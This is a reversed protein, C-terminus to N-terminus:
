SPESGADVHGYALQFAMEIMTLWTKRDQQSWKTNAKPLKKVLADVVPDGTGEPPPPAYSAQQPVPEHDQVENQRPGERVIPAVLRDDSGNPFFGAARASREFAQRAKDKQKPAVGFQVFAHEIGHPRPPLTRGRYEEYTRKYLPVNLFATAKAADERGPQVIDM